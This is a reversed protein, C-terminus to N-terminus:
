YGWDKQDGHDEAEAYGENYAAIESANMQAAVTKIGHGTGQAWYHPEPPRHYYYDAGGRDRPGGHGTMVEEYFSSM